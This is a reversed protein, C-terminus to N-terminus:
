PTACPSMCVYADPTIRAPLPPAATGALRHLVTLLDDITFPKPLMAINHDTLWPQHERVLTLSTTSVLLPIATTTATNKLLQVFAWADAECIAPYDCILVDPQVVMVDEVSRQTFLQTTVM